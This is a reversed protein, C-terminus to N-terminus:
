RIQRDSSFTGYLGCRNCSQSRVPKRLQVAGAENFSSSHQFDESYYTPKRLQVAGQRFTDCYSAGGDPVLEDFELLCVQMISVGETHCPGELAFKQSAM